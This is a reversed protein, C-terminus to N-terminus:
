PLVAASILGPRFSVSGGLGAHLTLCHLAM